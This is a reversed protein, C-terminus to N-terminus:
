GGHPKPIYARPPGEYTVAQITPPAEIGLLTRYRAERQMVTKSISKYAEAAGLTRGDKVFLNSNNAVITPCVTASSAYPRKSVADVFQTAGALGMMNLLFVDVPKAPRGSIDEFRRRDRELAEGAMSANLRVDDRLDLIRNLTKRKVPVVGDDVIQATRAESPLGHKAGFEKVARMWSRETWQFLGKGSSLTASAGGDFTSEMYAIAMLTPAQAGSTRAATRIAGLVRPNTEAKSYPEPVESATLQPNQGRAFSSIPSGHVTRQRAASITALRRELNEELINELAGQIDQVSLTRADSDATRALSQAFADRTPISTRNTSGIGATGITVALGAAVGIAAHRRPVDATFTTFGEKLFNWTESGIVAAGRRAITVTSVGFPGVGM